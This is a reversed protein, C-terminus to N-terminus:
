SELTLFLDPRRQVEDIILTGDLSEFVAKPNELAALDEPDELDFIHCKKKHLQRFQHAMTTKGCQRPGILGVIPHVDFAQIIRKLYATRKMIKIKEHFIPASLRFKM